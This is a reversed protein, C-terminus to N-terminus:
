QQAHTEGPLSSINLLSCSFRPDRPFSLCGRTKWYKIKVTNREIKNIQIMTAILNADNHRTLWEGAQSQFLTLWSYDHTRNFQMLDNVAYDFLLRDAQATTNVIRELPAPDELNFEEASRLYFASHMGSLTYLVGLGGAFFLAPYLARACPLAHRSFPQRYRSPFALWLLILLTISHVASLYLPYESMVHAMLPAILSARMMRQRNLPTFKVPCFPTLGVAFWLLLGTLAVIGGEAWVYLIENHPHTVTVTFPNPQQHEFLTQPFIREFSGLGSGLLPSTQIMEASGKLMTIRDTNSHQKNWKLRAETDQPREDYQAAIAGPATQLTESRLSLGAHGLMVGLLISGIVCLRIRLRVPTLILLMVVGVGAGLFASRSETMTLGASLVLSVLLFNLTQKSTMTLQIAALLTTALFSGLLNVQWFTGVPRGQYLTFDYHLWSGASDPLVIQLTAIVTQLLGAICLVLYFRQRWMASPPLQLLLFFFGALSWLGALRPIANSVFDADTWLIPLSMLITGVLLFRGTRGARLKRRILVFTLALALLSCWLWALLNLTSNLGEGPLTSWPWTLIPIYLLACACTGWLVLPSTTKAPQPSVKMM